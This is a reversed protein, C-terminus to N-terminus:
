VVFFVTKTGSLFEFYKLLHKLCCTGFRYDSEEQIKQSMHRSAVMTPRAMAASMAPALAIRQM